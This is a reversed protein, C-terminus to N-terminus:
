INNQNEELLIHTFMKTTRSNHNDEAIKSDTDNPFTIQYLRLFVPVLRHSPSYNCKTHEEICFSNWLIAAGM